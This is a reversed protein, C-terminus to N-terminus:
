IKINSSIYLELTRNNVKNLLKNKFDIKYLVCSKNILLINFCIKKIRNIFVPFGEIVKIYKNEIKDARNM